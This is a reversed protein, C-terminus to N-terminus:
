SNSYQFFTVGFGLYMIDKLMFFNTIPVGDVHKWTGPTTFLYSITMLFMVIVALSAIKAIIKYKLGVLILIATTIEFIGIFNSVVQTSMINYMWYTLPHNSVLPQIAAAETPTFKYYGVWLLILVTGTLSIYFGLNQKNNM